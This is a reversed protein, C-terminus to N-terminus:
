PRKDRITRLTGLLEDLPVTRKNVFEAVHYTVSSPVAVTGAAVDIIFLGGSGWATVYEGDQSSYFFVVAEANPELLPAPCATALSKGDIVVRGGFQKLHLRGGTASGIGTSDEAQLHDDKFPELVEATDLHVVHPHPGSSDTTAPGKTLIKIRAVLASSQFM